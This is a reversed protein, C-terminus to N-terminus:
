LFVCNRRALRSDPVSLSSIERPLRRSFAHVLRGRFPLRAYGHQPSHVGLRKSHGTVTDSNQEGICGPSRDGHRAIRADPRPKRLVLTRTFTWQTAKGRNTMRRPSHRKNFIKMM